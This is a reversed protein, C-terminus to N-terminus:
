PHPWPADRSLMESLTEFGDPEFEDLGAWDIEETNRHEDVPAPLTMAGSSSTLSFSRASNDVMKPDETAAADVSPDYQPNQYQFDRPFFVSDDGPFHDNQWLPKQPPAIEAVLQDAFNMQGGFSMHGNDRRSNVSVQPWPQTPIPQQATGTTPGTSPQRSPRDFSDTPRFPNSVVGQGSHALDQTRARNVQEFYLQPHPKSLGQHASRTLRRATHQQSALQDSSDIFSQLRQIDQTTMLNDYRPLNQHQAPQQQSQLETSSAAPTLIAPDVVNVADLGTTPATPIPLVCDTVGPDRHPRYSVPSQPSRRPNPPSQSHQSTPVISIVSNNPLNRRSSRGTSRAGPSQQPSLADHSVNRADTGGLDGVAGEAVNDTDDRKRKTPVRKNNGAEVYIIDAERGMAQQLYNWPRERAQDCRADPPLQKWMQEATWGEAMFIRLGDAWCHLPYYQCMHKLTTGIPIDVDEVSHYHPWHEKSRGKKCHITFRTRPTTDIDDFIAMMNRGSDRGPVIEAVFGKLELKRQALSPYHIPDDSHDPWLRTRAKRTAANERGQTQSPSVSSTTAITLPQAAEMSEHRERSFDDFSQDHYSSDM